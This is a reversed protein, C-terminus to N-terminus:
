RCCQSADRQRAQQQETRRRAFSLRRDALDQHQLREIAAVHDEVVEGAVEADVEVLARPSGHVDNLDDHTRCPKDARGFLRDDVVDSGGEGITGLRVQNHCDGTRRRYERALISLLEKGVRREQERGDILSKKAVRRKALVLGGDRDDVIKGSQDIVDQLQKGLGPLHEHHHTGSLDPSEPTLLEFSCNM